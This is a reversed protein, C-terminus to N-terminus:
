SSVIESGVLYWANNGQHRVSANGTVTTGTVKNTVQTLGNGNVVKGYYKSGSKNASVEQVYDENYFITDYGFTFEYTFGNIKITEYDEWRRSFTRGSDAAAYGDESYANAVLSIASLLMVLVLLISIKKKM